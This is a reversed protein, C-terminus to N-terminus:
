RLYRYLGLLGVAGGGVMIITGTDGDILSGVVLAAGGVVMLAVNHTRSGRAQVPAAFAVPAALSVLRVAVTSTNRLQHFLDPAPARVAAAPVLPGRAMETAASQQASVPAAMTLALAVAAFWRLDKSM